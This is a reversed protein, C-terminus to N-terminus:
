PLWILPTAITHRPMLPSDKYHYDSDMPDDGNPVLHKGGGVDKRPREKEKGGGRLRLVPTCRHTLLFCRPNAFKSLLSAIISLSQILSINLCIRAHICSCPLLAM